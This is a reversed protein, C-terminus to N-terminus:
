PGSESDTDPRRQVAALLRAEMREMRDGLRVEMDKRDQRARDLRDGVAQLGKEIRAEVHPFDNAALKDSLAKVEARVDDAAERAAERMWPRALRALAAVGGIVAGVAAVLAALAPLVDFWGPWTM